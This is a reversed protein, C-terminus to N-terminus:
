KFTYTVSEAKEYNILCSYLFSALWDTRDCLSEKSAEYNIM